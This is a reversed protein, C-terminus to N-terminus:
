LFNRVRSWNIIRSHSKLIDYLHNGHNLKSGGDRTLPRYLYKSKGKKPGISFLDLPYSFFVGKDFSGEGFQESTLDTLTFFAGMELGNSFSRTIEITGGIDRALYRGVSAHITFDLYPEYIYFNIHGTVSSYDKFKFFNKSFARQRVTSIEFGYSFINEVDHYLYELRAGSYMQEFHGFSLALYSKKKMHNFYNFLFRDFGSQGEKLYNQIDIRTPYVDTYGPDYALAEYNDIVPITYISEFEVHKTLVSSFNVGMFIEGFYFSAPSGIHSKIGPTVSFSSVPYKILPNFAFDESKYINPNRIEEEFKGNYQLTELPLSGNMPTLELNDIQPILQKIKKQYAIAIDRENNAITQIYRIRATNGNIDANQVLIGDEASRELICLYKETITRCDNSKVELFNVKDRKPFFNKKLLINFSTDNGETQYIGLEINELPQWAIGFNYRSSEVANYGSQSTFNNSDYELKLLLEHSELPKYVASWFFASKGRFYSKYEPVGGIENTYNERVDFDNHFYSLLNPINDLSGLRGWGVGASLDFKRIKKSAVIYESSFKGTGAFDEFGIAFAPFISEEKIRFKASFGKDKNSQNEVVYAYRYINMDNYFFSAELWNYPSLTIRIHQLPDNNALNFSGYGESFFRANPTRIVGTASTISSSPDPIAEFTILM